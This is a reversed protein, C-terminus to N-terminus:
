PLKQLFWITGDFVFEREVNEPFWAALEAHLRHEIDSLSEAGGEIAAILNSQTSLYRILQERTFSVRNEYVDRTEFQFGFTRAEDAEFPTRNRPPSPYRNLYIKSFWHQFSPDGEMNGKFYNDYIVLWGAPRLVRWAETLFASRNLWHFVSALTMLDFSSDRVPLADAAAACYTLNDTTPAFALMAPSPDIGLIQKAIAKLALTSLGTGCGIDIASSLLSTPMVRNKIHKIVLPHYYPRGQAYRDAASLFNFYNM